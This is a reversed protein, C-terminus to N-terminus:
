EEYFKGALYIINDVSDPYTNDLLSITDYHIIGNENRENLLEYHRFHDFSVIEANRSNITTAATELDMKDEKFDTLVRNLLRRMLVQTPVGLIFCGLKVPLEHLKAYEAIANAGNPDMVVSWRDMDSNLMDELSQSSMGYMNHGYHNHEIFMNARLERQFKTTPVYRYYNEPDSSRPKRTTTTQLHRADLENWIYNEIHTKGSCSAGTIVLLKTM